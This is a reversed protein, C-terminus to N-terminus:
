VVDWAEAKEDKVVGAEVECEHKGFASREAYIYLAMQVILMLTFLESNNVHATYPGNEYL